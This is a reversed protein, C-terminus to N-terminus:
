GPAAAPRGASRGGRATRRAARSTRRAPGERDAVMLDGVDVDAVRRRAAPGRRQEGAQRAHGADRRRPARRSRDRGRAPRRAPRATALGVGPERVREPEVVARGGIVGAGHVDVALRAVVRALQEEVRLQEHGFPRADPPQHLLLEAEARQEVHDREVRRQHLPLWPRGAASGSSRGSRMPSPRAAPPSTSGVVATDRGPTAHSPSPFSRM